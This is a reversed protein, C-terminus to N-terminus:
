ILCYISKEVCEKKQGGREDADGGGRLLERLFAEIKVEKGLVSNYRRSKPRPTRPFDAPSPHLNIKIHQKEMCISESQLQTRMHTSPPSEGKLSRARSELKPRDQWYVLMM